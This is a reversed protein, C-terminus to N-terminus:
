GCLNQSLCSVSTTTMWYENRNLVVCVLLGIIYSTEMFDCAAWIGSSGWSSIIGRWVSWMVVHIVIEFGFPEIFSETNWLPGQQWPQWHFLCVINMYSWVFVFLLPNMKIQLPVGFEYHFCISLAIMKFVIVVDGWVCYPRFPLMWM